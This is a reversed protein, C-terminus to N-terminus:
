GSPWRACGGPGWTFSSRGPSPPSRMGTSRAKPRARTRTVPSSRSRPPATATPSPSVPTPPAPSGATIGPVVEYRLGAAALAQAEEGGRGFVFPDGGKLRVVTAGSRALEVLTTNIEEQEMAPAGPRKGVYRLDCDERAGDLAGAPILRDYLIADAAAILDLSRRTMLGPDGPGAGVLHVIGASM